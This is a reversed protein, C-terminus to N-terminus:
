YRASSLYVDMEPTLFTLEHRPGGRRTAVDFSEYGCEMGISIRLTFFLAKPTRYFPPSYSFSMSGAYLETDLYLFQTSEEGIVMKLWLRRGRPISSLKVEIPIAVPLGPVFRLPNDSNNGPVSLKASVYEIGGSLEYKELSFHDLAKRFFSPHCPTHCALKKVETVFPSPRISAEEQLHEIQMLVASLKRVAIECHIELKSLRFVSSVLLLELVRLEEEKSLGIFRCRTDRLRRDLKALLLDLDGIRYNYYNATPLFHVYIQALLKVLRLYQDAFALSPSTGAPESAFIPLERKCARCLFPCFFFTFNAAFGDVNLFLQKLIYVQLFISSSSATIHM